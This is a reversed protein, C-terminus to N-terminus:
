PNEAKSDKAVQNSRDILEQYYFKFADKETQSLNDDDKKPASFSAHQKDHPKCAGNKSGCNGGGRKLTKKHKKRNIKSRLKHPKNKVRTKNKM